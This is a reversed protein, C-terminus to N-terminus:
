LSNTIFFFMPFASLIILVTIATTKATNYKVFTIVPVSPMTNITNAATNRRVLKTLKQGNYAGNPKLVHLTFFWSYNMSTRGGM